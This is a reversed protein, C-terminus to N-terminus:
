GYMRTLQIYNTLLLYYNTSSSIKGTILWKVTMNGSGGGPNFYFYDNYVVNFRAVSYADIFSRITTSTTTETVSIQPRDSSYEIGYTLCYTGSTLTGFNYTIFNGIAVATMQLEFLQGTLYLIMNNTTTGSTNCGWGNAGTFSSGIAGNSNALGVQAITVVTPVYTALYNKTVVDQPNTPNAVSTIANNNMNLPSYTALNGGFPQLILTGKTNSQDAAEIFMQNAGYQGFLMRGYNTTGAGTTCAIRVINTYSTSGTLAFVDLPTTPTINIGTFGGFYAGYNNTGVTSAAVYIGYTNTVATATSTVSDIYIGYSNTLTFAGAITPKYYMGYM